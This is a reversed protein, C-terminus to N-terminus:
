ALVKIIAHVTLCTGKKIKGRRKDSSIRSAHGVVGAKEIQRKVGEAVWGASGDYRTQDIPLQRDGSQSFRKIHRQGREGLVEFHKFVTSQDGAFFATAATPAAKDWSTEIFSRFPHLCLTSPRDLAEISQIRVEVSGFPM